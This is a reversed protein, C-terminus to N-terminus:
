KEVMEMMKKHLLLMNYLNWSWILSNPTSEKHNKLEQTMNNNYILFLLIQILICKSEIIEM